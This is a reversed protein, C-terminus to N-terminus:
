SYWDQQLVVYHLSTEEGHLNLDAIQKGSVSMQVRQPMLGGPLNLGIPQM